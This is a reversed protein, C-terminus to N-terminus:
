LNPQSLINKPQFRALICSVVFMKASMRSYLKKPFFIKSLDFNLRGRRKGDHCFSCRPSPLGQCSAVSGSVTGDHRPVDCCAAAAAAAAAAFALM